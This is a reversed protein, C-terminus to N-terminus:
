HIGWSMFIKRFMNEMKFANLNDSFLGVEIWVMPKGIDKEEGNVPVYLVRTGEMILREIDTNQKLSPKHHLSASRVFDFASQKFRKHLAITGTLYWQVEIGPKCVHLLIQAVSM